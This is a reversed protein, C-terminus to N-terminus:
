FPQVFWFMHAKLVHDQTLRLNPSRWVVETARIVPAFPVRHTPCAPPKLLTRPDLWQALTKRACCFHDFFISFTFSWLIWLNFLYCCWWIQLRTVTVALSIQWICHICIQTSIQCTLDFLNLSFCEHWVPKHDNRSCNPSSSVSSLLPSWLASM